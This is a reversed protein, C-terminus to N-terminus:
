FIFLNNSTVEIETRRGNEVTLKLDFSSADDNSMYVLGGGQGNTDRTTSMWVKNDPGIELILLNCLIGEFEVNIKNWTSGGDVSKFLGYDDGNFITRSADRYTSTGAAVFIESKDDMKELWLM